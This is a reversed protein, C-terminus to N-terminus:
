ESVIGGLFTVSYKFFAVTNVLLLIVLLILIPSLPGLDFREQEWGWVRNILNRETCEM